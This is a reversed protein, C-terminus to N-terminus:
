GTTIIKLELQIPRTDLYHKYEIEYYLILKRRGEYPLTDVLSDFQAKSAFGKEKLLWTTFTM